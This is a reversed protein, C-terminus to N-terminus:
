ASHMFSLGDIAYETLEKRYGRFREIEEEVNYKLLDGYRAKYGHALRRLKTEFLEQDFM